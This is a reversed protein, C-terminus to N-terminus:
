LASKIERLFEKLGGENTKKVIASGIIIGDTIDKLANVDDKTSIGFGIAKPIDTYKSVEDNLKKLEEIGAHGTGTVGLNSVCYVFGEAGKVINKIRNNSTLAVLPILNVHTSALKETLEYREEIPIDPIILGDIGTEECKEIFKDIGFQYVNNYYVLFVLPIQSDKRIKKVLEFIDKIKVHNSLARVSSSQITPGDALPDSNPIGLEVIDVGESEMDLVFQHTKELTPDGATVFGIFAKKNKEKLEKFKYYIRSNM